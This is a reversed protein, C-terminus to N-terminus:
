DESQEAEKSNKARSRRRFRLNRSPSRIPIVRTPDHKYKDVYRFSSAEMLRSVLNKERLCLRVFIYAKIYGRLPLMRIGYVEISFEKGEPPATCFYVKTNIKTASALLKWLRLSCHVEWSCDGQASVAVGDYDFPYLKRYGLRPLHIM